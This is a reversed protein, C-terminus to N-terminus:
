GMYDTLPHSLKNLIRVGDKAYKKSEIHKMMSDEVIKVRLDTAEQAQREVNFVRRLKKLKYESTEEDFLQNLKISLCEEDPFKTGLGPLSSRYYGYDDRNFLRFVEADEEDLLIMPTSRTSSLGLGRAARREMIQKVVKEPLKQPIHSTGYSDFGMAFTMIDKAPTVDVKQRTRTSPINLAHMYTDEKYEKTIFDSLSHIMGAFIYADLPSQNQFDAIYSYIGKEVYFNAIKDFDNRAVLPILGLMPANTSYSPLQEFFVKLFELYNEGSLGAIRPPVIVDSLPHSVVNCLYRIEDKTPVTNHLVGAKKSKNEYSFVLFSIDDKCEPRNLVYKLSRGFDVLKKPDGDIEDLKEKTLQRYIENIGRFDTHRILRSECSADEKLSLTRSPTYVTKSGVELRLKRARKLTQDPHELVAKVKPM